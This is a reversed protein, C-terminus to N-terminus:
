ARLLPKYATMITALYLYMGTAKPITSAVVAGTKERIRELSKMPM